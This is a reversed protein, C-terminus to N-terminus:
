HHHLPARDRLKGAHVRVDVVQLRRFAQQGSQV